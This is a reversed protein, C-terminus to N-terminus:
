VIQVERDWGHLYCIRTFSLVRRGNQELDCGSLCYGESTPEHMNCYVKCIKYSYLRQIYTYYIHKRSNTHPFPSPHVLNQHPFRLSLSWQPSWSTCPLIINLHTKFHSPTTPVPHLQSLYPCTAPAQSYPLPSEPEM